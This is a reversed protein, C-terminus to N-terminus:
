NLNVHKCHQRALQKHFHPHALGSFCFSESHMGSGQKLVQCRMGLWTIGRFGVGRHTTSHLPKRYYMSCCYHAREFEVVM